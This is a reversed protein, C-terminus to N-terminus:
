SQALIGLVLTANPLPVFNSIIHVNGRMMGKDGGLHNGKLVLGITLPGQSLHLNQGPELVFVDYVELVDDALVGHFFELHLIYQITTTM